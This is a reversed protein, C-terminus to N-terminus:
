HKGPSQVTDLAMPDLAKASAARAIRGETALASVQLRVCVKTPAYLTEMWVAGSAAPVLAVHVKLSPKPPKLTEPVTIALLPVGESAAVTPPKFSVTVANTVAVSLLPEKPIIERFTSWSKVTGVVKPPTEDMGVLKEKVPVQSAPAVLALVEMVTM